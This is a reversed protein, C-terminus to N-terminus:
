GDEKSNDAQEAIREIAIGLDIESLGNKECIELWQEKSLKKSAIDPVVSLPAIDTDGCRMRVPHGVECSTPFGRDHLVVAVAAGIIAAIASGRDEKSMTLNFDLSQRFREVLEDPHGVIDPLNKFQIGTLTDIHKKIHDTWMPLYVLSLTDQWAIERLPPGDYNRLLIGLLEREVSAEDDLLSIAPTNDITHDGTGAEQLAAIRDKMSPHTDYPDQEDSDLEERLLDAAGQSITESDLFASFGMSIPPRFGSALLPVVEGSWYADFAHAACYIKKLGSILADGGAIQAAMGDAAYEQQRSVAHTIRLFLKGYLLFPKQIVSNQLSELTRIIASRTKYVWPGLATEGGHYHGFEHALVARLESVNLVKLLPLGLAMVRHSGLGMVGGRNSVWANVDPLLFVQVPMAEGMAEAISELERFLKPHENPYLVPGPPVFNDVRPLIAWIIAVASLVCVLTLKIHLREAYKIEAYPIYLLGWAIAIALVYFGVMLVLALICRFILSPGKRRM